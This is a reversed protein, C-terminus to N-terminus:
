MDLDVSNVYCMTPTVLTGDVSKLEYIEIFMVEGEAAVAVVDRGGMILKFIVVPHEKNLICAQYVFLHSLKLPHLEGEGRCNLKYIITRTLLEHHGM